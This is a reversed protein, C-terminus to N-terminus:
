RNAIETVYFQLYNAFTSSTLFGYFLLVIPLHGSNFSYEHETNMYWTTLLDFAILLRINIISLICHRLFSDFKYKIQMM